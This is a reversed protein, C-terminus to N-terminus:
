RPQTRGFSVLPGEQPVLASTPPGPWNRPREKPSIAIENSADPRACTCCAGQTVEPQIAAAVVRKLADPMWDNQGWAVVIPSVTMTYHRPLKLGELAKGLDASHKKGFSLGEALARYGDDALDGVRLFNKIVVPQATQFCRGPPSRLDASLTASRVVGEKWGFGATVLLDAERRRYKLVKVHDIEVARAVQVVAQDLFRNQENSEGAVRSLDIFVRVRRRVEDLASTQQKDSKKAM